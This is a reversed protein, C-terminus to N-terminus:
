YQIIPLAFKGHWTTLFSMLTMVPSQIAMDFEATCLMQGLVQHVRELMGNVRPNKVTTPKHKIGYSRCLYEFHLKFESGIDYILYCFWPYRSLWIKNILKDICDSPKDFIKNATLLEKGNVTQRHLRTIVPLEAIEFGSSTPNIM